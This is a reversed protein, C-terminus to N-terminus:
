NSAQRLSKRTVSLEVLGDPESVFWAYSGWALADVTKKFPTGSRDLYATVFAVHQIPFGAKAALEELAKKRRDNVPGDTAVAEVFVLLPHAPGLDVLIADPLNKDIAITLGITRALKDDRDVIKNASESLLLVAPNQLFRRAFVEIVAKTIPTSPGVAMRRTEGNPYTVLVQSGGAAAGQRVLAIRALAGPNLSSTQWTTVASQFAKNTLAPNFLAAFSAALAYRPKSSTTPVDSKEIVAGLAVLGERLTEDRIPERTNDSYWRRGPPQYGAGLIKAAYAKRKADDTRASQKDTMRYVHKPGFFIGAGEVAGVYLAAFVTSAALERTCYNRHPIGEPFIAQLRKHIEDRALVPALPM